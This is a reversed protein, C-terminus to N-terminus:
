AKSGVFVWYDSDGYSGGAIEGTWNMKECLAKAARYSGGDSDSYSYSITVTNGDSDSAKMRSPRHNTPGLYKVRIAKM